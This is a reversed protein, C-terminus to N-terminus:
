PCQDGTCVSWCYHLKEATPKTPKGLRLSYIPFKSRKSFSYTPHDNRHHVLLLLPAVVFSCHGCYIIGFIYVDFWQRAAMSRFCFQSLEICLWILYHWCRWLATIGFWRYISSIMLLSFLKSNFLSRARPYHSILTVLLELKECIRKQFDSCGEAVDASFKSYYRRIMPIANGELCCCVSTFVIIQTHKARADSKTMFNRALPEGGRRETGGVKAM